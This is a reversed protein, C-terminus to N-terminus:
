ESKDDGEQEETQQEKGVGAFEPEFRVFVVLGNIIAKGALGGNVREPIEEELPHLVLLSPHEPL